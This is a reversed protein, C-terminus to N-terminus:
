KWLSKSSRWNNSRRLRSGRRHFLRCQTLYGQPGRPLLGVATAQALRCGSTSNAVASKVVNRVIRMAVFGNLRKSHGIVRANKRGSSISPKAGVASKTMGPSWGTVPASTTSHEREQALHYQAQCSVVSPAGRRRCVLLTALLLATSQGHARLLWDEGLLLGHRHFHCKVLRSATRM